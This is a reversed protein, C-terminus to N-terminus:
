KRNKATWLRILYTSEIYELNKTRKQVYDMFERFAEEGAQVQVDNVSWWVGEYQDPTQRISHRAEMYVVDTFLENENLKDTLENTIGVRGSSVRKIHPAIEFLKEEIEVLLPNVEILRPNWLVAFRGGPKLVRHFERLGLDFDVWHFSSAMTLLDACSESLGTDEGSGDKWKIGLGASDNEGHQRMDPNPEIATVSSCGRAAVMRTWIGTGAGVDVFDIESSPKGITCLLADLLTESYGPRYKSYNLALGTFDGKKRENSSTM